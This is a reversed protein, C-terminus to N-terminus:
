ELRKEGRPTVGSMIAASVVARPAEDRVSALSPLPAVPHRTRAVAVQAADQVVMQAMAEAAAREVHPVDAARQGGMAGTMGSLLASLLLLLEM